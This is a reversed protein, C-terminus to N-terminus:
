TRRYNSCDTKDGKRYIPVIIPEKCQEPLEEQDWISNILKNIVLFLIEGGAQFQEAPIKNSGPSKYMKLKAIAIKVESPCPEPVLLEATHIEIQWVDSVM